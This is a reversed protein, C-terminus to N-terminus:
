WICEQKLAARTLKGVIGDVELDHKEQYKKVVALTGRGYEGDIGGCADMEARYGAKYLCYQVWRVPDGKCCFLQIGEKIAIAETTVIVKPELYPNDLPFGKAIVCTHGKQCTTLVDGTWLSTGAVYNFAPQFLNTRSLVEVENETTFFPIDKGSAEAVLQRVLTSCDCNCKKKTRVGYKSLSYRDNQSYGIYKNNVAEIGLRAIAEAVDPSIPRLVRWGKKNMYFNQLRLEGKWDETANGQKQDGAEGNNIGGFENCVAHALIIEQM